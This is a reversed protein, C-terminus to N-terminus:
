DGIFDCGAPLSPTAAQYASIKDQVGPNNGPHGTVRIKPTIIM